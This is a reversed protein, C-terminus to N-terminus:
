TLIFKGNFDAKQGKIIKVFAAVFYFVRLIRYEGFVLGACAKKWM